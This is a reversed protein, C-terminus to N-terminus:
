INEDFIEWFDHLGTVYCVFLNELTWFELHIGCAGEM